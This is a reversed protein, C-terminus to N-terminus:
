EMVVMCEKGCFAMGYRIVKKMGQRQLGIAYKKEEIQRLAEKCAARGTQTMICRIIGMYVCTEIKITARSRM